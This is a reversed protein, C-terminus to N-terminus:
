IRLVITLIKLVMTINMTDMLQFYQIPIKYSVCLCAHIYVCLCKGYQVTTTEASTTIKELKEFLVKQQKQLSVASDAYGVELYGETPSINSSDSSSDSNVNEEDISDAVTADSDSEINSM